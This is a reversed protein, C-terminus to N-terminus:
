MRLYHHSSGNKGDLLNQRATQVILAEILCLLETNVRSLEYKNERPHRICAIPPM